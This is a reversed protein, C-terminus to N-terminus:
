LKAESNIKGIECIKGDAIAIDCDELGNETVAKGNKFIIDFNKM